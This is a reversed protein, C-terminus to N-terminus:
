TSSPDKSEMQALKLGFRDLKKGTDDYKSKANNLHTGLKGFDDQLLSLDNHLQNLRQLISQANKEIKLGQLGMAIVMLYAYLMNPSVPFVKMSRAFSGLDMGDDGVHMLEYFVNEAPVFMLAFDLTGEDPLIYKDSIDKIHKKVDKLFAKRAQLYTEESETELMRQFNPLPFKADICVKGQVLEVIADVLTGNKFKYPTKYHNPLIDELLNELTWEGLNGRLKPSQLIDQLKKVEGGVQVIQNTAQNLQGLQTKLDGVTKSVVDLRESTSKQTQQSLNQNQTLLSSTNTTLNQMAKTIQENLQGIRSDQQSLSSSLQQQLLQLGPDTEKKKGQNKLIVILIALVAILLVTTIILLIPLIDPM